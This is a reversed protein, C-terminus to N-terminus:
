SSQEVFLRIISLVGLFLLAWGVIRLLAPSGDEHDVFAYDVLVLVLGVFTGASALVALLLPSV